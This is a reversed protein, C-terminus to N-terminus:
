AGSRAWRILALSPIAIALLVFTSPEPVALPNTTLLRMSDPSIIFTSDGTIPFDTSAHQNWYALIEQDSLILSRTDFGKQAGAEMAVNAAISSLISSSHWFDHKSYLYDHPIVTQGLTIDSSGYTHLVGYLDVYGYNRQAGLLQIGHNTAIIADSVNQVGAEIAALGQGSQILNRFSAPALQLILQFIPSPQGGQAAVEFGSVLDRVYTTQIFDPITALLVPVHVSGSDVTDCITTIDAIVLDAVSQPSARLTFLDILNGFAINNVGIAIGVADLKGANVADRIEDVQGNDIAQFTQYGDVAQNDFQIKDGHLDQEIQVWSRDYSPAGGHRDPAYPASISDGIVGLRPPIALASYEVFYPGLMVAIMFGPVRISSFPRLVRPCFSNRALHLIPM